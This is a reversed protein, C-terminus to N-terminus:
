GGDNLMGVGGAIGVGCYSAWHDPVASAVDRVNEGGVYVDWGVTEAAGYPPGHDPAAPSLGPVNEGNAGVGVIRVGRTPTVALAPVAATEEDGGLMPGDVPVGPACIVVPAVAAVTEEGVTVMLRYYGDTHAAQLNGNLCPTPPEQM